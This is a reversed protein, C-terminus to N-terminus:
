WPVTEGRYDRFVCGPKGMRDAVTAVIGPVSEEIGVAADAGGMDTRVWGPHM